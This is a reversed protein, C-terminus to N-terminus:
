SEKASGSECNECAGDKAPKQGAGKKKGAHEKGPKSKGPHHPRAKPGQRSGEHHFAPGGPRHGRQKLFPAPRQFGMRPAAGFGPRFAMPPRMPGRPPAFGPRPPAFPAAHFRPGPGGAFGRAAAAWRAQRQMQMRMMMMRARPGFHARRQTATAAAKSGRKGPHRKAGPHGPREPRAGEERDQGVGPGRKALWPPGGHGQPIGHEARLKDLHQRMEAMKKEAEEHKGERRLKQVAEMRSRIEQRFAAVKEPSPPGPRHDPKADEATKKEESPKPGKQQDGAPPAPKEMPPHKPGGQAFPPPGGPGRPGRPGDGGGFRERMTEMQQKAEAIKKEAEEHKGAQRLEQVERMRNQMQERFRAAEPHGPGHGPGPRRTAEANGPAPRPKPKTEAAPKAPAPKPKTEPPDAKAKAEPKAKDTDKAAANDKDEALAPQALAVSAVLALLLHTPKKM